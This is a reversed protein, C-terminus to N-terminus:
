YNNPDSVSGDTPLPTVTASKWSWRIIASHLSLNLIYTLPAAIVDAGTKLFCTHINKLGSSKNAKLSSLEKRVFDVSIDFNKVSVM